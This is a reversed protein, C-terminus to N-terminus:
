TVCSHMPQVEPTLLEKKYNFRTATGKSQLPADSIGMGLVISERYALYVYTAFLWLDCLSPLKSVIDRECHLKKPIVYSIFMEKM